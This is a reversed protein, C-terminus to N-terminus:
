RIPAARDTDPLYRARMADVWDALEGHRGVVDLFAGLCWWAVPVTTQEEAMRQVVTAATRDDDRSLVAALAADLPDVGSRGGRRVSDTLLVSRLFQSGGAAVLREAGPDDIGVNHLAEALRRPEVAAASFRDTDKVEVTTIVRRDDSTRVAAVIDFGSRDGTHELRPPAWEAQLGELRSPDGGTEIRDFAVLHHGSLESLVELAVDCRARMEGVISFALPQSSLM